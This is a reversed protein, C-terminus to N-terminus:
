ITVIDLKQENRIQIDQTCRTELHRIEPHVKLNIANYCPILPVHLHVAAGNFTPLQVNQYGALVSRIEVSVMECLVYPLGVLVVEGAATRRFLVRRVVPLRKFGEFRLECPGSLPVEM